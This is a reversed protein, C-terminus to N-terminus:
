SASEDSAAQADREAAKRKQQNLRRIKDALPGTNHAGRRGAAAAKGEKEAELRAKEYVSAQKKREKIAKSRRSEYSEPDALREQKRPTFVLEDQHVASRRKKERTM